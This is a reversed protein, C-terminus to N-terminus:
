FRLSLGSAGVPSRLSSKGDVVGILMLGLGVLAMAAGAALGVKMSDKEDEETTGGYAYLTGAATLAGAGLATVGLYFLPKNGLVDPSPTARIPHPM